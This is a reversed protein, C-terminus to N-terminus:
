NKLYRGAFMVMYLFFEVVYIEPNFPEKANHLAGTLSFVPVM